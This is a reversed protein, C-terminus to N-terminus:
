CKKIKVVVVGLKIHNGSFYSVLVKFIHHYLCIYIYMCTRAKHRNYLVEDVAVDPSVFTSYHHSNRKRNEEYTIMGM